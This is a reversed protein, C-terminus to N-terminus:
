KKLFRSTYVIKDVEDSCNLKAYNHMCYNVCYRSLAPEQPKDCSLCVSLLIVIVAKIILENM